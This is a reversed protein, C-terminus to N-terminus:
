SNGSSAHRAVFDRRWAACEAEWIGALEAGTFFGTAERSVHRAYEDPTMLYIPETAPLGFLPDCIIDGSLVPVFGAGDFAPMKGALCLRVAEGSVGYAAGLADTEPLGPLRKGSEWNHVCQATAGVAEGAKELTLGARERLDKLTANGAPLRALAREHAESMDEIAKACEMTKSVEKWVSIM